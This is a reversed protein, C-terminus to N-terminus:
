KRCRVENQAVVHRTLMLTNRSRQDICDDVIRYRQSESKSSSYFNVDVTSSLIHQTAISSCQVKSNSDTAKTEENGTHAKEAFSLFALLMYSINHEQVYFSPQHQDRIIVKPM